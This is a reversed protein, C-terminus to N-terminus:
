CLVTESHFVINKIKIQNYSFLDSEDGLNKRFKSLNCIQLDKFKIILGKQILMSEMLNTRRLIDGYKWIQVHYGQRM